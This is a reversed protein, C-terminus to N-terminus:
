LLEEYHTIRHCNCCLPICKEVEDMIREWGYGENVMASVNKDKDGLHHFELVRHDNLGCRDCKLKKKYEILKQRNERIRKQGRSWTM